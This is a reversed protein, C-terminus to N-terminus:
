GNNRVLCNCASTKVDDFISVNKLDKKDAKRAGVLVILYFVFVVSITVIVAINGTDHLRIFEVVVQDFDIPNPKVILSGGFSTLHNCACDLFGNLTASLVQLVLLASKCFSLIKACYGSFHNRFPLEHFKM